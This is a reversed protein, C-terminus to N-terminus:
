GPSFLNTGNALAVTGRLGVAERGILGELVARDEPTNAVFRRGDELRGIVIGREPEGDRGYIVTYTEITGNGNPNQAIQPHPMRDIEQQYTEPSERQWKGPPPTTGYIGISHKTAYWGLGTTLGTTGPKARVKDMVTAISHMTYNSAPGGHYPLGGTVTLPRPGNEDIGLMDRAIQVACPFCSYLDLYDIQDISLGAMALAKQGAIRIAPSTHYNVRDSVFWLDHADGVGLLYVWRSPDIGLSRARSVSTMLVCAAQDVDMIANMYKPYPFAILRNDSTIAAIEAATRRQRFWAYPNEAAVETMAACLKGLRKRHEEIGLGKHARLANEFLPFIQTPMQFWHRMEMENTGLRPDGVITPTGDKPRTWDLKVGSRQARRMTYVAEAGALLAFGVKGEAISAATENVLWQPTNGGVTTYLFEGPQAGLREAVLYPAAECHWSMSNVIAISDLKAFLKESAGADTAAKRAVDLIMELPELARAPDADRQTLQGAGILIPARDESM